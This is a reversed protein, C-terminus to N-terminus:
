PREDKPAAAATRQRLHFVHRGEKQQCTESQYWTAKLPFRTPRSSAFGGGALKQFILSLRNSCDLKKLTSAMTPKERM